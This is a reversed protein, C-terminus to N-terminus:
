RATGVPQRAAAWAAQDRAPWDAVDLSLRETRRTVAGRGGPEAGAARLGLVVEDYRRIAARTEAGTYTAMTTRISKHGLMRQVTGQDGPHEDLLLKGAIHRFM